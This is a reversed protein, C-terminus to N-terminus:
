KKDFINHIKATLEFGNEFAGIVSKMIETTNEELDGRGKEINNVAKKLNRGINVHKEASKAISITRKNVLNKTWNPAELVRLVCKIIEDKRHRIAKRFGPYKRLYKTILPLFTQIASSTNAVDENPNMCFKILKMIEEKDKRLKLEKKSNIGPNNKFEYEINDILTDVKGSLFDDDQWKKLNAKRQQQGCKRCRYGM